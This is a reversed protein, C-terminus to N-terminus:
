PVTGLASQWARLDVSFGPLYMEAVEVIVIRSARLDEVPAPGLRTVVNNSWIVDLQEFSGKLFPIMRTSFSDRYIVARPLVRRGPLPQAIYRLRDHDAFRGAVGEEVESPYVIKQTVATDEGIDLAMMRSLDGAYRQTKMEVEPAYDPWATPALHKLIAEAAIRSGDLNWHTDTKFYVQRDRKAERLVMDVRVFNKVPFEQFADRLLDYHNKDCPFPSREEGFYEPYVTPKDPAVIFVFERGSGEVIKELEHLQRAISRMRQRERPGCDAKRYDHLTRYYYLWGETGIHVKPSPSTDFLHYDIWNKAQILGGRYAFHDTFYADVGSYFKPDLLAEPSFEPLQQLRRNEELSPDSGAMWGAVPSLLLLLFVGIAIRQLM